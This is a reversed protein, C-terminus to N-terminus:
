ARDGDDNGANRGGIHTVPYIRPASATRPIPRPRARTLGPIAQFDPLPRGAAERDMFVGTEPRAVTPFSGRTHPSPRFPAKWGYSSGWKRPSPYLIVDIGAMFTPYGGRARPLYKRVPPESPPVQSGHTSHAAPYRSAPCSAMRGIIRACSKWKETSLGHACQHRWARSCTDGSLGDAATRHSGLGHDRLRHALDGFCHLILKRFPSTHSSADPDQAAGGSEVAPAGRM